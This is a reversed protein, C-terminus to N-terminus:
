GDREVHRLPCGDGRAGCCADRDCLRCIRLAATRDATLGAVLKEVVTEFGRREIPSLGALVAAVRARRDDLVDAARAAGDITLTLRRQRADPGPSRRVWGAAALREVLRTAGSSTLDLVEALWSVTCGPHALLTVLAARESNTAAMRDTLAVALAGVLNTLRDM